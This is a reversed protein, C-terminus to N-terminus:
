TFVHKWLHKLKKLFVLKRPFTYFLWLIFLTFFSCFDKLFTYIYYVIPKNQFKANTNANLVASDNQWFANM